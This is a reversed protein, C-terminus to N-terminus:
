LISHPGIVSELQSGSVIRDGVLLKELAKDFNSSLVTYGGDSGKPDILAKAMHEAQRRAQTTIVMFATVLLAFMTM